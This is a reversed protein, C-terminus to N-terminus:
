KQMQQFLFEKLLVDKTFEGESKVLLPAYLASLTHKTNFTHSFRVRYFLKSEPNLDDKLSFYTGGNGPIRVENYGTQVLGTEFVISSQAKLLNKSSFGLLIILCLSYFIYNKM